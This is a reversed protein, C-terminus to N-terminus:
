REDLFDSFGSKLALEFPEVAGVFDIIELESGCIPCIDEALVKEKPVKLKHYSCAGFWTVVQVRKEHRVFSAHTCQYWITGIVSKRVDKVKYIYGSGFKATEEDYLKRIVGEFGGCAICKDRDIVRADGRFNPCHRCGHGGEIFGVVHFHPSFQWGMEVGKAAAERRNHFRFGHFILLGGLIGVTELLKIQKAKLDAFKLGYDHFAVSSIIHEVLGLGAHKAGDEDTFGKSIKDLRYAATKAERPAWGRKYCASCEPKDCSHFQKRWFVKGSYDVVNGHADFSAVNHREVHLCGKYRRFRSCKDNTAKEQGVMELESTVGWTTVFKSEDSGVCKPVSATKPIKDLLQTEFSKDYAEWDDNTRDKNEALGSYGVENRAFFRRVSDSYASKPL